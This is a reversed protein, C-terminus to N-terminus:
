HDFGTPATAHQTSAVHVDQDIFVNYVKDTGLTVEKGHVFNHAFLGVPGLLLYTAITATSAEGKNDNEESAHSVTSLAIKGGDVSYIWDLNIALKGGHGNGGAHEVHTVTAQGNAGRAVVVIGNVDVEKTTVIGVTDGEHATGSSIPEALSVSVPTGGVVLVPGPAPTAASAAAAPPTSTQALAILPAGVLAAIAIAPTLPRGFFM